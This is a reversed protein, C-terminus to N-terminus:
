ARPKGGTKRPLILMKSGPFYKLEDLEKLIKDVASPKYLDGAKFKEAFPQLNQLAGEAENRTENYVVVRRVWAGVKENDSLSMWRHTSLYSREKKLADVAAESRDICKTIIITLIERRHKDSTGPALPDAEALVNLCNQASTEFRGKVSFMRSDAATKRALEIVSEVKWRVGAQVAEDLTKLPKDAVKTSKQETLMEAAALTRRKEAADALLSARRGLSRSAGAADGMELYCVALSSATALRDAASLRAADILMVSEMLAAAKAWDSAAIAAKAQAMVAPAQDADIAANGLRPTGAIPTPNASAKGSAPPPEGAGAAAAALAAALLLAAGAAPAMRRSRPSETRVSRTPM